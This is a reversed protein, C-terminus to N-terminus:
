IVKEHDRNAKWFRDETGVDIWYGTHVFASLKGAAALRPFVETEIMFRDAAVSHIAEPTLLYYGANIYGSVPETPKEHFARVVGEGIDVLGFGRADEQYACGIANPHSAAFMAVDLDSLIDGNLVMFSECWDRSAYKIGGGTGLPEPEVIYEISGPWRADCFSIIQDAKHHLSLRIDGFGHERLLSIQRELISRGAVEVLPKPRSGAINALRTGFGGALILVKM